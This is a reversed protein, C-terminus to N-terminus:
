ITGGQRYSRKRPLLGRQSRQRVWCPPCLDGCAPLTIQGRCGQAQCCDHAHTNARPGRGHVTDTM